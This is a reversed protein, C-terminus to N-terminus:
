GGVAAVVQAHEADTILGLDHAMDAYAVFVPWDAALVAPIAGPFLGLLEEVRADGLLGLLAQKIAKPDPPVAFTLTAPRWTAGPEPPADFSKVAFGEPCSYGPPLDPTDGEFSQWMWGDSERYIVHYAM